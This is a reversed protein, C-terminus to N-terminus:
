ALTGQAVPAGTPAAVPGDEVTVMVTDISPDISFAFTGPQHMTGLSLVTGDDTAGWLEYVQHGPSPMNGGLFFAQGNPRVVVVASAGNEGSLRALRAGPESVAREAAVDLSAGAGSAQVSRVENDLHRVQLALVAIVVAAAAGVVAAGVRVLRRRRRSELDVVSAELRMPPPAEDIAAVIRDWAGAPADSGSNGLLTAVERLADVEARCRPCTALHEEVMRAEDADVADLVYAGLLEEIDAHSRPAIM